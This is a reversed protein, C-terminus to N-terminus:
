IPRYRPYFMVRDPEVKHGNRSCLTMDIYGNDVSRKLRDAPAVTSSQRLTDFTSTSAGQSSYGLNEYHTSLKREEIAESHLDDSHYNAKPEDQIVDYIDDSDSYM